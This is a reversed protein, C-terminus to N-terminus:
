GTVENYNFIAQSSEVINANKYNNIGSPYLTSSGNKKPAGVLLRITQYDDGCNRVAHDLTWRIVDGPYTILDQSFISANDANM